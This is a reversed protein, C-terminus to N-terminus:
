LGTLDFLNDVELICHHPPLPYVNGNWFHAVPFFFHTVPGLYTGFGVPYVIDFILVLSYGKQVGPGVM